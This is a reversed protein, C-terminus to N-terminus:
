SSLTDELTTLSHHENSVLALQLIQMQMQCNNSSYVKKKYPFPKEKEPKETENQHVKLVHM